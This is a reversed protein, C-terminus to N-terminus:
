IPVATVKYKASDADVCRILVGGADVPQMRLSERSPILLAALNCTRGGFAIQMMAGSENVVHLMGCETGKIWGLEIPQWENTCRAVRECPQEDTTLVRRFKHTVSTPSAGAAAHYVTEVVVLRPQKPSASTRGGYGGGAQSPVPSQVMGKIHRAGASPPAAAPDTVPRPVRV